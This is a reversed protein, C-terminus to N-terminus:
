NLKTRKRPFLEKFFPISISWFTYLCFFVTLILFAGIVAMTIYYNNFLGNVIMAVDSLWSTSIIMMIGLMIGLLYLTTNKKKQLERKQLRNLFLVVLALFVIEFVVGAITVFSGGFLGFSDIIPSRYKVMALTLIKNSFPNLMSEPYFDMGEIASSNIISAITYHGMEHIILDSFIGTFLGLTMLIIVLILTKM